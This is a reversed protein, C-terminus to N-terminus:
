IVRAAVFWIMYLALGVLAAPLALRLPIALYEPMPKKYAM